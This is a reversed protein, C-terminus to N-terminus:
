PRLVVRTAGDQAAFRKRARLARQVDDRGESVLRRLQPQLGRQALLAEAAAVATESIADPYLRAALVRAIEGPRKEWVERISQFYVQM